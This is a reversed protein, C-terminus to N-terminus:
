EESNGTTIEDQFNSVADAHQETAQRKRETTEAINNHQAIDAFDEAEPNLQYLKIKGGDDPYQFYEKWLGTKAGETLRSAVTGHSVVLADDIESFRKPGDALQALIEVAGKKQFFDRVKQHDIENEPEHDPITDGTADVSKSNQDPYESGSNSTKELNGVTETEDDSTNSTDNPMNNDEEEPEL